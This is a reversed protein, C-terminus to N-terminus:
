ILEATPLIQSFKNGEYPSKDRVRSVKHLLMASTRFTSMFLYYFEDTRYEKWGKENTEEVEVGANESSARGRSM